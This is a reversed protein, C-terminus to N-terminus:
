QPEYPFSFGGADVGPRSFVNNPHLRSIQTKSLKGYSGAKPFALSPAVHSIVGHSVTLLNRFM